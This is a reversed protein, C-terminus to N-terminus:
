IAEGILRRQCPHACFLSAAMGGLNPPVFKETANLMAHAEEGNPNSFGSM